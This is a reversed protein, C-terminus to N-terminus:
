SAIYQIYKEIQIEQVGLCENYLKAYSKEKKKTQRKRIQIQSGKEKKEKRM